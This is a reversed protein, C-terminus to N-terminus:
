PLVQSSGRSRALRTSPLACDLEGAAPLLRIGLGPNDEKANLREGRRNGTDSSLLNIWCVPSSRRTEHTTTATAATESSQHFSLTNTCPSIPAAAGDGSWAQGGRASVSRWRGEAAPGM